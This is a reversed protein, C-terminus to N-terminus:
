EEPTDDNLQFVAKLSTNETVTFSYIENSSVKSGGKYWGAFSYGDDARAIATCTDGLKYTGDGETEGGANSGLSVNFTAETTTTTTTTTPAETTTTTTTTTTPETTTQKITTATTIQTTTEDEGKNAHAIAVITGVIIAILIVCLVIILIITQQKKKKAKEDDNDQKNPKNSPAGGNRQPTFQNTQGYDDMEEAENTITDEDDYLPSGCNQCIYLNDDNISGCNKCRM